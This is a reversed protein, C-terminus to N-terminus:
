ASPILNRPGCEIVHGRPRLDDDLDRRIPTNTQRIPAAPYGNASKPWREALEAAATPRSGFFTSVNAFRLRPQRQRSQDGDIYQQKGQTLVTHELWRYYFQKNLAQWHGNYSNSYNFMVNEHHSITEMSLEILSQSANFQLDASPWAIVL